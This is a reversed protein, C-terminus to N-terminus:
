WQCRSAGVPVPRHHLFFSAVPYPASVAPHPAEPSHVHREDGIEFEVNSDDFAAVGRRLEHLTLRDGSHMPAMLFPNDTSVVAVLEDQTAWLRVPPILLHNHLDAETRLNSYMSFVPVTSLGIYPNLAQFVVLALVPLHVLPVRWALPTASSGRTALIAGILGAVLALTLVSVLTHNPVGAAPTLWDVDRGWRRIWGLFGWVALFTVIQRGPSSVTQGLARSITAVFHSQAERTMFLFAVALILVTFTSGVGYPNLSMSLHLPIILLVAVNRTRRVALLVPVLLEASAILYPLSSILWSPSALEVGMWDRGLRVYRVLFDTTCSVEADFFATNLKAVAAAGYAILLTWRMTPLAAAVPLRSALTLLIAANGFMMIISHNAVLMGAQIVTLLHVIALFAVLYWRAPAVLAACAAAMLIWGSPDIGSPHRAFHVVHVLAWMRLFAHVISAPMRFAVGCSARRARRLNVNVRHRHLWAGASSSRFRRMHQPAPALDDDALFAKASNGRSRRGM